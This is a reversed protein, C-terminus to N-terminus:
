ITRTFLEGLSSAKQELDFGHTSKDYALAESVSALIRDDFLSKCTQKAMSDSVWDDWTEDEDESSSDSRDRESREENPPLDAWRPRAHGRAQLTRQLTRKRGPTSTHRM